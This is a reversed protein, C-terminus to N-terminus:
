YKPLPTKAQLYTACERREFNEETITNLHIICAELPFKPNEEAFKETTLKNIINIHYCEDNKTPYKMAKFINFTVEKDQV